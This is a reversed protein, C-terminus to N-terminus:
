AGTTSKFFHENILVDWVADSGLANGPKKSLGLLRLQATATGTTDSSDLEVASRGTTSSGATYATDFNNGVQDAAVNNGVSDEKIQFIVDPADVVLAVRNTSAARHLTELNSQLPLFGVVVGVITTSTAGAVIVTPMGECDIGNVTLGAAGAGVTGEKIVLDGVYVASGDAAPILYNTTRGNWASGDLHRVPKLGFAADPNAM